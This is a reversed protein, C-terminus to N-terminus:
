RNQISSDVQMIQFSLILLIKCRLENLDTEASWGVITFWLTQVLSTVHRLIKILNDCLISRHFEALVPKVPFPPALEAIDECHARQRERRRVYM